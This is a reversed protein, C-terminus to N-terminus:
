IDKKAKNSLAISGKYYKRHAHSLMLDVLQKYTKCNAVLSLEVCPMNQYVHSAYDRVTELIDNDSYLNSDEWLDTNLPTNLWVHESKKKFFGAENLETDLQLLMSYRYEDIRHFVLKDDCAHKKYWFEISNFILSFLHYQVPVSFDLKSYRYKPDFVTDMGSPHYVSIVDKDLQWNIHLDVSKNKVSVRYRKYVNQFTFHAVDTQLCVVNYFKSPENIEYYTRLLSEALKFEQEIKNLLWSM